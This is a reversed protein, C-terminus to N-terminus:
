KVSIYYYDNIKRVVFFSGSEYYCASKVDENDFVCIGEKRKFTELNFYVKSNYYDFEEEYVVKEGKVLIIFYKESDTGILSNDSTERNRYSPISIMNRVCSLPTLSEVIFLHDYDCLINKMDIIITSDQSFVSNDCINEIKKTIPKCGAVFFIILLTLFKSGWAMKEKKILRELLIIMNSKTIRTRAIINKGNKKSDM